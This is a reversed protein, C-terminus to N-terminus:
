DLRQSLTPKAGVSYKKLHMPKQVSHSKRSRGGGGWHMEFHLPMKPEKPICFDNWWSFINQQFPAGIKFLSRNFQSQYVTRKKNMKKEATIYNNFKM